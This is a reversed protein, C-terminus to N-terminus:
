EGRILKFIFFIVFGLCLYIFTSIIGAIPFFPNSYGMCIADVIGLIFTSFIASIFLHRTETKRFIAFLISVVTGIGLIITWSTVAIPITTNSDM